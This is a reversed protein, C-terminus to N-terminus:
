ESGYSRRLRKGGRAAKGDKPADPMRKLFTVEKESLHRWHGRQLDKKTLGAFMVRDLKVVEYGLHEFMRRVIRNRGMHIKIGVERRTAAASVYSVEDAHAPGDDLHVGEVLEKLHAAHVAKDLTVHYIKEAGHSPHTLRKALDGDNTLLLVGTTNRDLRGVPYLRETAAKAILDMVTHRERPDDTTTITDKPKNLLVYRKQETSLKQGGFHVTDTPKIKTGLETVVKGNVTVAGTTILEDAERRSGVGATALYKNLRILGENAPNPLSFRNSREGKKFPRRTLPDGEKFTREDRSQRKWPKEARPKAPREGSGRYPKAPREGRDDSGHRKAPRDRDRPPRDDRPPGDRRPGSGGRPRESRERWPGDGEKRPGRPGRPGEGPGGDRRPGRNGFSKKPGRSSASKGPGGPKRGRPGRDNRESM